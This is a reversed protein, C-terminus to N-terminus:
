KTNEIVNSTKGCLLGAAAYGSDCIVQPTGTQSTSVVLIMVSGELAVQMTDPIMDQAPVKMAQELNETSRSNNRNLFVDYLKIFNIDNVWYWHLFIIMAM